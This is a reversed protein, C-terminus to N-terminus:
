GQPEGRLFRKVSRVVFRICYYIALLFVATLFSHILEGM